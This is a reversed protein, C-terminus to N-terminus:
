PCGTAFRNLFCAFDQVNLVPPETSEDCNAYSDGSAFRNLFCAFDQVNLVPAITSGDCNAYCSLTITLTGAGFATASSGGVRIQYTQGAQVPVNDIISQQSCGTIGANDNCALEGGCDGDHISLVTYWTTGCTSVKMVGTAPATYNFFVDRSTATSCSTTISPTAETTDFPNAGTVAVAAGSCEDNSPAAPAVLISLNMTSSASLFATVPASIRVYYPVGQFLMARGIRSRQSSCGASPGTTYDNNCAIESGSCDTYLTLVTDYNAGCTELRYEQTAPPTFVFWRDAKLAAAVCTAAWPDTVWAGCPSQAPSLINSGMTVAQATACTDNLASPTAPDVQVVAGTSTSTGCSNSATAAYTGADAPSYPGNIRLQKDAALIQYTSGSGSPGSVIPSGNKTWSMSLPASGAAAANLILSGTCANFNTSAAPSATIVAPICGAGPRDLEILWSGPTDTDLSPAGVLTNGDDSIDYAFGLHSLGLGGSSYTGFGAGALDVSQAVLYDNLDHVIEGGTYIFGGRIFSGCTSYSIQGIITNGDDTMGTPILTPPIPCGSVPVWWSSITLASNMNYLDTRDWQLTGANWTWRTLYGDEPQGGASKFSTGVIITGADNIQFNDVNRYVTGGSATPGDPLYSWDYTNTGSNWRWVGARGGSTAGAVNPSEGGVIVTGDASVACARATTTTGLLKTTLPPNQGYDTVYGAFSGPSSTSCQGVIFRGTASIDRVNSISTITIALPANIWAAATADWRSATGGVTGAAFLGDDSCAVISPSSGSVAGITLSNLGVGYSSASGYALIGDNSVGQPVGPNLVVVRPQGMALGCMGTLVAAFMTKRMISESFCSKGNRAGVAVTAIHV